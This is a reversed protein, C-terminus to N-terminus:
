NTRAAQVVSNKLCAKSILLEVTSPRGMSYSNGSKNIYPVSVSPSPETGSVEESLYSNKLFPLYNKWYLFCSIKVLQYLSTLRVSGDGEIQSGQEVFKTDWTMLLMRHTTISFAMIIFTILKNLKNNHQSDTRQLNRSYARLVCRTVILIQPSAQISTTSCHM